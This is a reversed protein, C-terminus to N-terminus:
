GNLGGFNTPGGSADPEIKGRPHDETTSDLDSFGWALLVLDRIKELSEPEAAIGLGPRSSDPGTLQKAVRGVTSKSLGLRDATDRISAGTTLLAHVAQHLVTERASEAIAIARDAAALARSARGDLALGFSADLPWRQLREERPLSSHWETNSTLYDDRRGM